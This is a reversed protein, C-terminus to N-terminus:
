SNMPAIVNTDGNAVVSWEDSNCRWAYQVIHGGFSDSATCRLHITDKILVRADAFISDIRPKASEIGITDTICRKSNINDQNLIANAEGIKKNMTDYLRIVINGSTVGHPIKMTTFYMKKSNDLALTFTDIWNFVTDSFIAIADEVIDINEGKIPIDLDVEPEPINKSNVYIGKEESQCNANCDCKFLIKYRYTRGLFVGNDIFIGTRYSTNMAISDWLNSNIDKRLIILGSKKEINDYVKWTLKVYINISDNMSCELNFPDVKEVAFPNDFIKSCSILLISNIIILFTLESSVKRLVQNKKM